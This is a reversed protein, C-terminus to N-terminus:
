ASRRRRLRYCVLRNADDLPRVFHRLTPRRPARGKGERGQEDAAGTGLRGHFRLRSHQARRPEHVDHTAHDDVVRHDDDGTVLDFRDAGPEGHRWARTHDVEAGRREQRPECVAVRM